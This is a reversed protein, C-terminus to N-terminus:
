FELENSLMNGNDRFFRIWKKEHFRHEKKVTELVIILPIKNIKKIESIIYKKYTIAKERMHSNLRQEPKSKTCGIYFVRNDIPNVLAYIVHYNVKTKM